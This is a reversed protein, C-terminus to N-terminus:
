EIRSRQNPTVTSWSSPYRPTLRGKAAPLRSEAVQPGVEGPFVIEERLKMFHDSPVSKLHYYPTRLLAENQETMDRLLWQSRRHGTPLPHLLERWATRHRQAIATRRLMGDERGRM